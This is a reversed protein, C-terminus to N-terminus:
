LKINKAKLLFFLFQYGSNSYVIYQNHNIKTKILRLIVNRSVVSININKGKIKKHINYHFLQKKLSIFEKFEM